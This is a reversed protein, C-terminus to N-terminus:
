RRGLLELVLPTVDLLTPEEGAAGRVVERVEAGTSGPRAVLLLVRSDQPSPSGHMSHFPDGFYFREEVPREMGAKALLLVDGAREAHPGEGLWRLREELAPLDPRPHARLYEGVPLLREGDWVRFGEGPVRVLILDLTGRLAPVGEGARTARDYARVVPLVDEELRPPREWACPDGPAPCTSRDALYLSAVFGNYALVAQYDEEETELEFPRVRFGARRLVEPPEDEGETGLAHRDDALTPTHGHDSLFLVWSGELAGAARYAELVEGVAPDVVKALYEREEELPPDAEHTFLDIGPFYVVGLDPAGHKRVEETFDEAGSRDMKGYARQAPSWEGTAGEAVAEVMDGVDTPDPVILMDAGRHVMQLAVLARVDAREFLTPTSIVKGLLGETYVELTHRRQPVTSPVPAFFRREERDFWENGPVGTRAPPEGTFASSWAPYTMTPFVSLVGPVRYGHAYAGEGREAGVVSAVHPLGGAALAARFEDPGVGDLAFVLVRPAGRAPRMPERLQKEEDEEALEVVKGLPTKAFLACGPLTGLFLFLLAARLPRVHM